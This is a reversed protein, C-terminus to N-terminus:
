KGNHKDGYKRVSGRTYDPNVQTAPLQNLSIESVCRQVSRILLGSLVDIRALVTERSGMQEAGLSYPLLSATATIFAEAASFPEDVVFEGLARGEILLEALILSEAHHYKERRQLLQPRIAWFLEDMGQAYGHACDFRFMVRDILMARLRHEATGQGKLIAKLREQLRLNGRDIVSLAVDDKSEFYLYITGKGLGARTALDDMTMRKFGHERLAEQAADLIVDHTRSCDRTKSIAKSVM